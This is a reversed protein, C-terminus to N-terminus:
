TRAASKVRLNSLLDDCSVCVYSAAIRRFSTTYSYRRVLGKEFKFDFNLSNFYSEDLYLESPQHHKEKFGRRAASEISRLDAFPAGLSNICVHNRSESVHLLSDDYYENVGQTFVGYIQLNLTERYLTRLETFLRLFLEPDYTNKVGLQFYGATWNSKLILSDAWSIFSVQPFRLALADLGSRLIHLQISGVAGTNLADRAGIADILGFVSHFRVHIKKLWASRVFITPKEDWRWSGVCFVIQDRPLDIAVEHFREFVDAFWSLEISRETV